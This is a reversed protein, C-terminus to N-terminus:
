RLRAWARHGQGHGETGGCIADAARIEDIAGAIPPALHREALALVGDPGAHVFARLADQPDGPEAELWLAPTLAGWKADFRGWSLDAKLEAARDATACTIAALRAVFRPELEALSRAAAESHGSGPQRWRDSMSHYNGLGEKWIELLALRLPSDTRYPHRALWAKQLVHAYEHRFLRDIRDENEPLRADGYTAFLAALDFGVTRADHTFADSAGRSGAVVRLTDPGQLPAYPEAVAAVQREWHPARETILAAWAAEGEGLPRRLRAISDLPADPLLNGVMDLWLPTASGDASVGREIRIVSQAELEGHGPLLAAIMAAAYMAWGADLRM